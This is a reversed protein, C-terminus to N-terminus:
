DITLVKGWPAKWTSFFCAKSLAWANYVVRKPFSVLRKHELFSDLSKISFIGDKTELWIM